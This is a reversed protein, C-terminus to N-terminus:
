KTTFNIEKHLVIRVRTIRQRAMNEVHLKGHDFEVADGVKPTRELADIIM